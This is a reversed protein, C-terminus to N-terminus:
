ASPTVWSQLPRELVAEELGEIIAMTTSLLALYDRKSPAEGLVGQLAALVLDEQQEFPLDAFAM